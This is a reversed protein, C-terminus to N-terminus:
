TNCRSILGPLRRRFPFHSRFIQSKPIARPMEDLGWSCEPNMVAYTAVLHYRAGSTRRQWRHTDHGRVTARVACQNWRLHHEREFLVRVGDIQPRGRADKGLHEPSLVEERGASIDLMEVEDEFM